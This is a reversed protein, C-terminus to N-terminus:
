RKLAGIRLALETRSRVDLKAYIRTLSGEVAKVSVFLARAIERNTRGEAVLWAVREETPSLEDPEAGRSGLRQMEARARAAWGVAGVEEFREVAKLLSERAARKRRLRRRVTGLVLLTRGLEFPEVLREHVILSQELSDQAASLEGRAADLLGRCRAAMALAWARDLRRGHLELSALLREARDLEGLEILAEIADHRSRFATPDEHGGREELETVLELWRNASKANNRSLEIFGLAAWIRGAVHRGGAKENLSLAEMALAHAADLRDRRAEVMAQAILGLPKRFLQETRTVSELCDAAYREALLWDGTRCELDSMFYFLLPLSVDFGREEAQRRLEALDARALEPREGIQSVILARALRPSNELPLHQTAHELAVSRRLLGATVGEGSLYGSYLMATQAMALITKDPQSRALQLAARAHIVAQRVDGAGWILSLGFTHHITSELAPDSGAEGLAERIGALQEDLSLSSHRFESLHWLAAARAPGPPATQEIEEWLRRAQETDGALYHCMAAESSRRWIVDPQEPPTLRRAEELLAAAAEPAGRSRARQAADAIIAAKGGDADITALALHRAREEVDVVVEALHQHLARRAGSSAAAYQVSALLPHTFRVRDDEREVIGAREASQLDAEVTSRDNAVATIIAVTPNSLAAVTLLMDRTRRPLRDLRSEVLERLNPPVTLASGGGTALFPLAPAGGQALLQRAIELAYFPNGGSTEHLQLLVRRPLETKLRTQIMHHLAGVSLPRLEVRVFRGPPLARDMSLVARRDDRTRQVIIVGIPESELRRIAFELVRASPPDLWQSDDIALLLPGSRALVRLSGLVASAVARPDLPPSPMAERLLAVELAQRQPAALLPLLNDVVRDLLDTIAAYSFKAEAEAPRCSLVQYRGAAKARAWSWVSTKGMGPEGEILLGVAGNPLEELVGAVRRLEDDRGFISVTAAAEAQRAM